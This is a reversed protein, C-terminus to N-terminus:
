GAQYLAPGAVVHSNISSFNFTTLYPDSDTIAIFITGNIAPDGAYTSINPQITTGHMGKGNDSVNLPSYTINLQSAWVVYKPDGATTNTIYSNNPGVPKGPHDWSLYVTRGPYSLPETRNRTIGPNCNIGVSTSNLCSETKNVTHSNLVNMGGSPITENIAASGNIRFPNPQNEIYLAPFNQWVLRTQNDPCSSIHPALLTWAWSQSIGVEFWVPMPFLGEFQRFIMQQRAETTIAQTLLTAAERSDLHALFGYVGAEGFRTLKQCFDVFEHVTTYPYNYVCQRPARAGLINTLMTAHGVEQDAMFQILYRDEASLGAATFDAESFRALGDHFLDLEMYEQYLALALSEFDFDSKVNYVPVSGNTGVGGAPIYPGPQPEHLEGDSPYLTAEPAVGLTPVGPGVSSATLAGTTTATGSYPTHPLSASHSVAPPVETSTAGASTTESSTTQSM